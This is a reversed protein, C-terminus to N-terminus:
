KPKKKRQKGKGEGAPRFRKTSEGASESSEPYLKLVQKLANMGLAAQTNLASITTAATMAKFISNALKGFPARLEERKSRMSHVAPTMRMAVEGGAAGIEFAVTSNDLSARVVRFEEIQTQTVLHTATGKFDYAERAPLDSLINWYAFSILNRIHISCTEQGWSVSDTLSGLLVSCHRCAMMQRIDFGCSCLLWIKGLHEHLSVVRTRKAPWPCSAYLEETATMSSTERRHHEPALETAEIAIQVHFRAITNNHIADPFWTSHVSADRKAGQHPLMNHKCVACDDIAEKCLEVTADGHMFCHQAVSVQESLIDYAVSTMLKKCANFTGSPERNLRTFLLRAERQYATSTQRGENEALKGANMKGSCGIWRSLVANEIEVRSNVATDMAPLALKWALCWCSRSVFVRDLFGPLRQGHDDSCRDVKAIKKQSGSAKGQVRRIWTTTLWDWVVQFEKPTEMCFCLRWLIHILEKIWPEALTRFEHLIGRDIIHWMCRICLAKPTCGGAHSMSMIVAILDDDGDSCHCIVNKLSPGHIQILAKECFRFMARSENHIWGRLAIFNGRAGNIGVSFWWPMGWKCVRGKTDHHLVEPFKTFMKVEETFAWLLALLLCDKGNVKVIRSRDEHGGLAPMTAAPKKSGGGEIVAETQQANGAMRNLTALIATLGKRFFSPEAPVDQPSDSDEEPPEDVQCEDMDSIPVSFQHAESNIVSTLVNAKCGLEKVLFVVKCNPLAQLNQILAEADSQGDARLRLTGIKQEVVDIENAIFQITQKSIAGKQGNESLFNSIQTSNAGSEVLRQIALKEPVSLIMNQLYKAYPPPHGSHVMSFNARTKPSVRWKYQLGAQLKGNISFSAKCKTGTVHLSDRPANRWADISDETTVRGKKPVYQGAAQRHPCEFRMTVDWGDTWNAPKPDPVKSSYEDTKHFCCSSSHGLQKILAQIEVSTHTDPFEYGRAFDAHFTQTWEAEYLKALSDAVCTLAPTTPVGQAKPRESVIVVNENEFVVDEDEFDNDQILVRKQAVAICPVPVLLPIIAIKPVPPADPQPLSPILAIKPVSSPRAFAGGGSMPARSLPPIGAAAGGGSSPPHSLISFAYVFNYEVALAILDVKWAIDSAGPICATVMQAQLKQVSVNQLRATMAQVQPSDGEPEVTAIRNGFPM